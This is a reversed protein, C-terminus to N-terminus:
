AAAPAPASSLPAGSIGSMLGKAEILASTEDDFAKQRMQFNKLLFDCDGHLTGATKLLEKRAEVINTSDTNADATDGEAKGLVVKRNQVEKEKDEISKTTDGVTSEYDSQSESEDKIADQEAVKSQEIIFELLAMVGKSGSSKEYPDIGRPAGLDPSSDDDSNQDEVAIIRSMDHSEQLFSGSSTYYGKLVKLAAKLLRQTERQDSVSLQFAKNQDEREEAAKMLEKKMDSIENELEAKEGSAKKTKESLHELLLEVDQQQQENKDQQMKNQHLKLTCFDNKELEGRKQKKLEAIMGDIAKMVEALSDTRARLALASLRADQRWFALSTLVRAAQERRSRRLQSKQLFSQAAPAPAAADSDVSAVAPAAADLDSGGVPAAASSAADADSGGGGELVHIAENVAQVEERREKQRRDWHLENKACRRNVSALFKKDSNLNNLATKKDKKDYALQEDTAAKEKDKVVIQANGTKLEEQKAKVLKAYANQNNREEEAMEGLNQRFSALMGTMAGRIEETGASGSGPTGQLFSINQRASQLISDLLKPRTALAHQLVTMVSQSSVQLMSTGAPAPASASSGEKNDLTNMAQKLAAISGELDESEAEYEKVQKSRIATAQRLAGNNREVENKLAELEPGIRASLAVAQDIDSSLQNIRAEGEEIALAKAKKTGTCWCVMKEYAEEDKKADVEIQTEMDELLGVVRGVPNKRLATADFRLHGQCLPIMGGCIICALCQTWPLRPM